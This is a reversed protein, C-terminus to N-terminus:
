EERGDDTVEEEDPDSREDLRCWHKARDYQYCEGKVKEPHHALLYGLLEGFRNEQDGELWDVIHDIRDRVQQVRTWEESLIRVNRETWKFIPAGYDEMFNCDEACTDLMVCGTQKCAWAAFDGVGKYQTKDTLQHLVGLEWGIKPVQDALAAGVLSQVREILPIRAGNIKEESTMGSICRTQIGLRDAIALTRAITEKVDPNDIAQKLEIAKEGTKIMSFGMPATWVGGVALQSVLGRLWAIDYQSPKYKSVPLTQSDFPVFDDEEDREDGEFPYIVLSLLLLYGPRMDLEHYSSYSMGLLEVPMGELLDSIGCETNLPLPYYKKGFLYAFRYVRRNRPERLIDLEYEPMLTRILSLFKEITEIDQLSDILESLLPPGVRLKEALLSLSWVEPQPYQVTEVERGRMMADLEAQDNQRIIEDLDWM